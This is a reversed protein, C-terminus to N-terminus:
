TPVTNIADLENTDRASLGVKPVNYNRTLVSLIVFYSERITLGAM